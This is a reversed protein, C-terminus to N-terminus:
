AIPEHSVGESSRPAVSIAEREVFQAVQEETFGLTQTLLDYTHEGHGPAVARVAAGDPHDSMQM